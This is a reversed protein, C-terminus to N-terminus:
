LRPDVADPGLMGADVQIDELLVFHDVFPDLAMVDLLGEGMDIDIIFLASVVQGPDVVVDHCVQILLTVQHRVHLRLMDDDASLVCLANDLRSLRISQIRRSALYFVQILQYVGAAVRHDVILQQQAGGIMLLLHLVAPPMGIEIVLAVAEGRSRQRGM